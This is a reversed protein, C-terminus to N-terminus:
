RTRMSGMEKPTGVTSRMNTRMPRTRRAVLASVTNFLAKGAEGASFEPNGTSLFYEIGGPFDVYRNGFGLGTGGGPCGFTKRDFAAPRGRAAGMLLAVVSGWRGDKFQLARDPKEDTHLVAVPPYKLVLAEEIRSRM